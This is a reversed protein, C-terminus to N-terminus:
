SSDVGDIRPVRLRLSDVLKKLSASRYRTPAQVLNIPTPETTWAPLLRKLQGTRLDEVVWPLPLVSFGCGRCTARHADAMGATLAKFALSVVQDDGTASRLRVRGERRACPQAGVADLRVLDIPSSVTQAAPHSPSIVVISRVYGVTTVILGHDRVEGARVWLDCGSRFFSIEDDVVRWRVRLRDPAAAVHDIIVDPLSNPGLDSPLAIQLGAGGSHSAGHRSVLDDWANLIARADKALSIGAETTSIGHTNRRILPLQLQNELEKLLRSARAQSMELEDAARSVSGREAVKLFTELLLLRDLTRRM